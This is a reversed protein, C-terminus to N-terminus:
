KQYCSKISNLFLINQKNYNKKLNVADSNAKDIAAIKKADPQKGFVGGHDCYNYVGMGASFIVGITAFVGYVVIFVTLLENTGSDCFNSDRTSKNKKANMNFVKKLNVAM